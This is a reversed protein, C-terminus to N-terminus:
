MGVQRAAGQLQTLLGQLGPGGRLMHLRRLLLRLLLEPQVHLLLRGRGAHM